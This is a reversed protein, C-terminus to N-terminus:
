KQFEEKEEETLESRPLDIPIELCTRCAGFSHGIGSGMNKVKMMFYDKPQIKEMCLSCVYQNKM